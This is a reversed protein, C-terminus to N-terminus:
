FRGAEYSVGESAIMREEHEARCRERSQRIRKAVDSAKSAAWQIRDADKSELCRLGLPGLQIGLHGLVSTLAIMGRNFTLVALNVALKVTVPSSFDTKSCRVWVVSNFSENQNQTAGMVCRELLSRNCLREFIPKVHKELRPPILRKPDKLDKHHPVEQSFAMARQYSCWSTAGKPCCHHQPNDDASISHYYVAWCAEVMGELDGAHQCIANGYYQQLVLYNNKTIGGAGGVQVKKIVTETFEPSAKVASRKKTARRARVAPHTVMVTEMPPKTRLDIIARGLRKQVHGVCEYKTLKMEEGYPKKKRLTKMTKSDGDSVVNVYRLNLRSESRKWLIVAAAAEMSPSSGIHNLKCCDKHTEYWQQFEEPTLKANHVACPGCYRCMVQTDLVRGTDLAAVVGVGYLATFGRKSWTGDYTVTM